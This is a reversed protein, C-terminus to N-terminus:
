WRLGSMVYDPYIEYDQAMNRTKEIDPIYGEGLFNVHIGKSILVMDANLINASKMDTSFSDGVFLINSLNASFCEKAYQLVLENPKGLTIVRGGLLAYQEAVAGSGLCIEGNKYTAVDNGVCLFVLGLSAAYELKDTYKEITDDNEKVNGMFIFDAKSIDKTEVFNLGAFLSTAAGEGLNYYRNGSVGMKNPNKLMYHLLEGATIIAKFGGLVGSAGSEIIDALERIRLYSNSLVVVEKGSQAIKQLAQLAEVNINEGKSLVGNFGCVVGDYGDIIKSIGVIPKIFKM